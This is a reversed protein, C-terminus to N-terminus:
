ERLEVHLHDGTGGHRLTAFGMAWFYVQVLRNMLESRDATRLDVAHVWGDPQRYHRSSENLPLGMRAYDEPARRMDTVVLGEDVVIWTSLALRLLPHLATYYARVPEAKANVRSLYVLAYGCYFVVLPLAVWKALMIRKGQRTVKRWLWSAYATVIAITLLAATLVALWTPVHGHEYFFVSGRVLVAFPLAVIVVLRLASRIAVVGFERWTTV